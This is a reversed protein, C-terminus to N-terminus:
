CNACVTAKACNIAHSDSCSTVYVDYNPNTEIRVWYGCMQSVPTGGATTTCAKAESLNNAFFVAVGGCGAANEYLVNYNQASGTSPSGDCTPRVDCVGSACYGSACDGGSSCHRGNSCESCSGGCDVDTENG